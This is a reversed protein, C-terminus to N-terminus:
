AVNIPSHPNFINLVNSFIMAGQKHLFKLNKNHDFMVFTAEMKKGKEEKVVDGEFTM